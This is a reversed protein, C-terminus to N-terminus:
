SVTAQLMVKMSSALFKGEIYEGKPALFTDYCGLRGYPINETILFWNTMEKCIDCFYVKPTMFPMLHVLEMAVTIVPGVVENYGSVEQRSAPYEEFLSPYKCFLESHLM